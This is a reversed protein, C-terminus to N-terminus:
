ITSPMYYDVTKYFLSFFLSLYFYVRLEDKSTLFSTTPCFFNDNASYLVFPFGGTVAAVERFSPVMRDTNEIILIFDFNKTLNILYSHGCKQVAFRRVNPANSLLGPIWSFVYQQNHKKSFYFILNFLDESEAIMLINKQIQLINCHKSFWYLRQLKWYFSYFDLFRIYSSKTNFQFLAEANTLKLWHSAFKKIPSEQTTKDFNTSRYTNLQLQYFNPLLYKNIIPTNNKM